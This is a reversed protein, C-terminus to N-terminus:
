WWILVCGLLWSMILSEINYESLCENVIEVGIKCHWDEAVEWVESNKLVQIERKVKSEHWNSWVYCIYL